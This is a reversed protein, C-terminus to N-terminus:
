GDPLERHEIVLQKEQLVNRITITINSNEGDEMSPVARGWGRELILACAALQVAESEANQALGCIKRLAMETHSRALSRLDIPLRAM